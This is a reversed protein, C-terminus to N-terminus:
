HAELWNKGIGVSALLPVDLGMASEMAEKVIAGM